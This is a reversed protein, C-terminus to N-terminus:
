RATERFVEDAQDFLWPLALLIMYILVYAFGSKKAKDFDENAVAKIITFGGKFIIIWKGIQMLKNYFPRVAEDISGSAALTPTAFDMGGAVTVIILTGVVKYTIHHRKFHREIKTLLNNNGDNRAMFESISYRQTKM